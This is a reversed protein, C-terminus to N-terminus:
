GDRGATPSGAAGSPQSAPGSSPTSTTGAVPTDGDGGTAAVLRLLPTPHEAEEAGRAPSPENWNVVPGDDYTEAGRLRLEDVNAPLPGGSVEFENFEGPGIRVGPQATWVVSRVAETIERDGSKVPNPLKEKRVEATWGSLPKTQISPVPTDLPFTVELKITG